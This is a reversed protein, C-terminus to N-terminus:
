APERDAPAPPRAKGARDKGGEHPLPDRHLRKPHQLPRAPHPGPRRQLDNALELAAQRDHESEWEKVRSQAERVAAPLGPSGSGELKLGTHSRAHDINDDTYRVHNADHGILYPYIGARRICRDFPQETDPYGDQQPRAEGSEWYREFSWTAGAQRITPMHLMTCTHSVVNRWHSTGPRPSMEYGVVPQDDRCLGLLWELLDRRRPFVDSHTHLLHTTRCLAHALDLATTVPASSHRYGHARIYHIEVNPRRLAEIRKVTKPSSGTDIILIYPKVTQLQLLALLVPLTEPTELHPVCVTAQYEWPRREAAGEWPRTEAQCGHPAVPAVPARRRAAAPALAGLVADKARAISILDAM